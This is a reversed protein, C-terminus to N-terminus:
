VLLAGKPSVSSRVVKEVVETESQKLKAREQNAKKEGREKLKRRAWWAAFVLFTLPVTAIWYIRFRRNVIRNYAAADWNLMLMAFFSAVFTGLLFFMTVIAVTKM